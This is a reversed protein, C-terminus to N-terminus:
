SPEFKMIRAVSGDKFELRACAEVQDGNLSAEYGDGEKIIKKMVRTPISANFPSIIECQMYWPSILLGDDCSVSEFPRRCCCAEM